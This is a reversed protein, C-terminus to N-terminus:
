CLASPLDNCIARLGVSEGRTEGAHPAHESKCVTGGNRASRLAAAKRNARLCPPLCAFHAHTFQNRIVRSASAATNRIRDDSAYEQPM